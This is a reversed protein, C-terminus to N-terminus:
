SGLADGHGFSARLADTLLAALAELQVDASSSIQQDSGSTQGTWHGPPL